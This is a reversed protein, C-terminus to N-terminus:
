ELVYSVKGKEKETDSGDALVYISVKGRELDVPEVYEYMGIGYICYEM